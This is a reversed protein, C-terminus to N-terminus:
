GNLDAAEGIYQAVNQETIPTSFNRTRIQKVNDEYVDYFTDAAPTSVVQLAPSTLNMSGPLYHTVIMKDDIWTLGLSPTANYVYLQLRQRVDYDLGQRIKWAENISARIRTLLPTINQLDEKARVMAASGTPDLFFIEVQVGANVRDLLASRFRNDKFWNGNAHGLQVWHRKAQRLWGVWYDNEVKNRSGHFDTVGLRLFTQYLRDGDPGIVGVLATALMSGGVGAFVSSWPQWGQWTSIAVIELVFGGGLVILRSNRSFYFGCRRWKIVVATAIVAFVVIIICSVPM